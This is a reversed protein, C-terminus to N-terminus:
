DVHWYCGPAFAWTFRTFAVYYGAIAISIARRISSKDFAFVVMIVSAIMFPPQLPTLITLFLLVWLMVGYRIASPELKRTILKSFLLVPFTNLILNWLRHVWIPLGQWLFLVGWLGYRGPSAYPNTIYGDYKYLAQGFMLSYDYFRNGESWSLSFPYDVVLLSLSALLSTFILVGSSLGLSELSVLQTSGNSILYAAVWLASLLVAFRTDAYLIYTEPSVLYRHLIPVLYLLAVLGFRLVGLKERWVILRHHLKEGYPSYLLFISIIVIAFGAVAAMRYALANSFIERTEQAVRPFLFLVFTLFLERWGFVQDGHPAAFFLVIQTLGAAFVLQSWPGPVAHQWPSYLYIYTFVIIVGVVIGWRTWLPKEFNRSWRNLVDPQLFGILLYVLGM